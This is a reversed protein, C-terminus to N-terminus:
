VWRQYKSEQAAHSSAHSSAPFPGPQASCPSSCVTLGVARWFAAWCLVAVVSECGDRGEKSSQPILFNRNGPISNSCCICHDHGLESFICGKTVKTGGLYWMPLDLVSDELCVSSLRQIFCIESVLLSCTCAIRKFVTCNKQSICFM